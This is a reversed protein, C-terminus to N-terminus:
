NTKTTNLEMRLKKKSSKEFAKEQTKQKLKKGIQKITNEVEDAWTNYCEQLEGKELKKSIEKEPIITKCKKYGKRTIM